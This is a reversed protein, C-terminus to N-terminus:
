KPQPNDKVWVPPDNKCTYWIKKYTGGAGEWGDCRFGPKVCTGSSTDGGAAKCKNASDSYGGEGTSGGCEAGTTGLIIIGAIALAEYWKPKRM